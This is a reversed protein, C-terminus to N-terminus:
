HIHILETMSLDWKILRLFYYKLLSKINGRVEEFELEWGRKKCEVNIFMAANRGNLVSEVSKDFRIM